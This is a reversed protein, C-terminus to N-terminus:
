LEWSIRFRPNPTYSCFTGTKITTDLYRGLEPLRRGLIVLARDIARTVNIRAREAHSGAARARGGLGVDRVLQKRLFELEAEARAARM